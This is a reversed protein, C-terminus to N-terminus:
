HMDRGSHQVAIEGLQFNGEQLSSPFLFYGFRVFSPFSFSRLNVLGRGFILYDIAIAPSLLSWSTFIWLSHNAYWLYLRQLHTMVWTSIPM